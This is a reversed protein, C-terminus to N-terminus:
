TSRHGPRLLDAITKVPHFTRRDTEVFLTNWHAMGGNWLGPHELGRLSCGGQSKDVLFVQRPDAFRRLEYLRGRHDRLGLVMDVPNFHTAQSFIRWQTRDRVDVQASEVIQITPGEPGHVWFPGGGPDGINPVMGCVRIPRNLLEALRRGRTTSTSPLRPTRGFRVLLAVARRHLEPSTPDRELGRVVAYAETQLELLLSLIVRRWDLGPKQRDAVPINDINRVFVLDGGCGSLNM